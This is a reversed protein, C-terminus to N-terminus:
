GWGGGVGWGARRRTTVRCTVREMCPPPSPCTTSPAPPLMPGQTPRWAPSATSRRTQLSSGGSNRLQSTTRVSLRLSPNMDRNVTVNFPSNRSQSNGEMSLVSVKDGALIKFSAIVQDATDTDTTETSMFDIFAQFTVAGSANPDVIGM